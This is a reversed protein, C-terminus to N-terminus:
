GGPLAPGPRSPAFVETRIRERPLGHVLLRWVTNYVMAAPGAVYAHRSTSREEIHPQIPRGSTPTTTTISWASAAIRGGAPPHPRPACSGCAPRLTAHGPPSDGPATSRPGLHGAADHVGVASRLASEIPRRLVPNNYPDYTSTSRKLQRRGVSPRGRDLTSHTLLQPTEEASWRSLDTGKPFYQRLLGNTNENSGRQWPSHPDAFYVPIGTEITFQAHQSPEKGRDWTLSRRLHEPLTTITAALANKM